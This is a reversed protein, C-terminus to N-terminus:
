ANNEGENVLRARIEYLNSLAVGLWDGEKDEISDIAGECLVILDEKSM